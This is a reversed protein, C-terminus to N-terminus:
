DCLERDDDDSSAWYAQGSSCVQCSPPHFWQDEFGTSCRCCGDACPAVDAQEGGPLVVDIVGSTSEEFGSVPLFGVTVIQRSSSFEDVFVQGRQGCSWLQAIYDVCLGADDSHAPKPHVSCASWVAIACGEEDAGLAGVSHDFIMVCTADDISGAGPGRRV